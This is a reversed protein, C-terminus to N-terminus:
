RSKGPFSNTAARLSSNIAGRQCLPSLPIEHDVLEVRGSNLLAAFNLYLDSAPMVRGLLQEKAMYFLTGAAVTEEGAQLAHATGFDTIKAHGERDIVINAPKLDRHVIGKEHAYSLAGLIDKGIGIAQQLSLPGEALIDRLSRGEVYDMVMFVIDGAKEVTLLRIIHPHDLVALMKPEAVLKRFDVSQNHPIKLAVNKSLWTDEALWVSGFAGGGAQRILRYKGLMENSKIEM